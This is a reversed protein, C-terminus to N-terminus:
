VVTELIRAVRSSEGYNNISDCIQYLFQDEALKIDEDSKRMKLVHENFYLEFVDCVLQKQDAGGLDDIAKQILAQM